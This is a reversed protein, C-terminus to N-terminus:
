RTSGVQEAVAHAARVNDGTLLIPRLGLKRLQEIAARSTGRITDAVVVVGTM